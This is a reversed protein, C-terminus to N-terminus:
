KHNKDHNEKAIIWGQPSLGWPESAGGMVEAQCYPCNQTDKKM